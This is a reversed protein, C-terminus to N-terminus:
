LIGSVQQEILIQHIDVASISAASNHENFFPPKQWGLDPSDGRQPFRHPLAPNMHIQEGTTAFKQSFPVRSLQSAGMTELKPLM